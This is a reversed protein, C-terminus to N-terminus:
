KVFDTLREIAAEIRKSVEGPGLLEITYMLDIGSTVGTIAVRLVQMVSGMGIGMKDLIPQMISRAIEGDFKEYEKNLEAAYNSLFEVNVVTWKKRIVKEDYAEPRLFFYSSIAYLEHLFTIREKFAGAVRTVYDPDAKIGREVLESYLYEGIDVDPILKLYQQNYWKAKEIDFKAGAKNVRDISFERVLDDISFLEQETGPNWGLFALFNAAVDSPPSDKLTIGWILYVCQTVKAQTVLRLQNTPTAPPSIKRLINSAEDYQKNLVLGIAYNQKPQIKQYTTSIPNFVLKSVHKTNIVFIPKHPPIKGLWFLPWPLHIATKKPTHM